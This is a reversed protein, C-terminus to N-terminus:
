GRVAAVRPDPLLLRLELGPLARSVADAVEAALQAQPLYCFCGGGSGTLAWGQQPTARRLATLQPGLQPAARVAAPELSSGLLEAQPALGQRLAQAVAAVREGSSFDAPVTAAYAAATPVRGLVAVLFVGQALSPLPSLEEGVGSVLAAGGLLSFPVDAGCELALQRLADASADAGVLRLVAAADASGGGLGAQSPVRKVLALRRVPPGLGRQRLLLAARVALNTVGLPVGAAQPGLVTLQPPEPALGAAADGLEAGVVDSWAVTQSVAALLHYGDGRRGLLELALNLKAAARGWRLM